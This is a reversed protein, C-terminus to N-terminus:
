ENQAGFLSLMFQFMNVFDLYLSLAGFISARKMAEGNGAVMAYEDKLRQTDYATLGAFILLGIVSIAFQLASSALFFNVIMAVIIGVVGMILFSGWGSLDKKTTYGYLSLGAFAAATVFFMQAISGMKFIVFISSLSLGMAVAFAWFVLQATSASTRAFSLFLVFGLPMLALVWKLPSLLITKGLPTLYMGGKLAAAALAPDTTVMQTYLGYAVVGSLAVAVAMYNYVGLMFSRLGEDIRGIERAATGVPRAYRDYQAM